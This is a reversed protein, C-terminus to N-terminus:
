PAEQQQNLTAAARKRRALEDDIAHMRGTAFRTCPEAGHAHMKDAEFGRRLVRLQQDTMSRYLATLEHVENQRM